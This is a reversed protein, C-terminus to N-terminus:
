AWRNNKGHKNWRENALDMMVCEAYWVQQAQRLTFFVQWAAAMFNVPSVMSNIWSTILIHAFGKMPGKERKMIYLIRVMSAAKQVSCSEVFWAGCLVGRSSWIVQCAMPSMHHMMLAGATIVMALMRKVSGDDKM